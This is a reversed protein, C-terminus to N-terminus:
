ERQLARRVRKESVSHATGLRQAFFSVRLEEIMWGAEGLRVRDVDRPASELQEHLQDELEHVVLMAARDRSLDHPAKDLRLEVARLYRLLHPLRDIGAHTVFGPGILHDLQAQVDDVLEADKVQPLGARLTQGLDVIRQVQQLAADVTDYLDARVATRLREFGAQDWAPGGHRSALADVAATLTDDLLPGIGGGPYASLALKARNDLRKVVAPMPSAVALLLLRRTGLRMSHQQEEATHFVSVGVSRGEDVLAPYGTIPHGDHETEFTRPLEGLSWETLGTRELGTAAASLRAQTKPRLRHQLEAIDPGEDVTSGEDDIVRFTLRLHVPLKDFRWADRPVPVGSMRHLERGLADLLSPEEADIRDLVARAHDPAPIFHRRLQKPLSRILETVLERRHGPVQWEFRAPDLDALQALPVDVTIGDMAAGPEFAYSLPMTLGDSHWTDPYAAADVEGSDSRMLLDRDFHLRDPRRRRAKKWWADFHAGSVVHQPVRADYFDFLVEDDVLIDRRRTRQELEEVEIVLAANDRLFRHRTDWEGEVLARRIFLERALEPDVRAYPVKRQAVVPVGYLTVREFAMVAARKKEWHPESYSRKVLHEALREVWAPDIKAATRAFLRSTEVLEAAMVWAPPKRALASGPF